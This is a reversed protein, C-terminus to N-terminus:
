WSLSIDPLNINFINNINRFFPITLVGKFL